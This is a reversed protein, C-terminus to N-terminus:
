NFQRVMHVRQKLLQLELRPSFESWQHLHMRQSFSLYPKISKLIEDDIKKGVRMAEGVILRVLKTVALQVDQDTYERPLQKGKTMRAIMGVCHTLIARQEKIIPLRMKPYDRLSETASAASEFAEALNILEEEIYIEEGWLPHMRTFHTAERVNVRTLDAIARLAQKL